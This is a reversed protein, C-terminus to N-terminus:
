HQSTKEWIYIYCKIILVQHNWTHTRGKHADNFKRPLIKQRKHLYSSCICVHHLRWFFIVITQQEKKNVKMNYVCLFFHANYLNPPDQLTRDPVSITRSYTDDYRQREILSSVPSTHHQIDHFSTKKVNTIQARHIFVFVGEESLFITHSHIFVTPECVCVCYCPWFWLRWATFLSSFVNNKRKCGNSKRQNPTTNYINVHTIALDCQWGCWMPNRCWGYVM